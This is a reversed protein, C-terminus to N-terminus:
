IVLISRKFSLLITNTYPRTPHLATSPRKSKGKKTLSLELAMPCAKEIQWITQQNKRGFQYNSYMGLIANMLVFLM